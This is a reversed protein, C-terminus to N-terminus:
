IVKQSDGSMTPLTNAIGEWFAEPNEVSSKYQQQYEEFSNIKLPM